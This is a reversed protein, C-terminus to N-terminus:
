GRGQDNYVNRRISHCPRMESADPRIFLYHQSWFPMGNAWWERLGSPVCSAMIVAIMPHWLGFQCPTLAALAFRDRGCRESGIRRYIHIFVLSMGGARASLGHSVRVGLWRWWGGFVAVIGHSPRRMSNDCHRMPVRQQDNANWECQLDPSERDWEAAVACPVPFRCEHRCPAGAM